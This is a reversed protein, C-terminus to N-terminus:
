PRAQRWWSSRSPWSDQKLRATSLPPTMPIGSPLTPGRTSFSRSLARTIILPTFRGGDVDLNGTSPAALTRETSGADAALPLENVVDLSSQQASLLRPM